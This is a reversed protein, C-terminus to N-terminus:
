LAAMKSKREKIMMLLEATRREWTCDEVSRSLALKEELSLPKELARRVFAVFQDSDKAIAVGSRVVEPIATSVVPCGAALLEYLKIPNVARTLENVVFPIIGVSFRAVYEPIVNFLRPGLLMVNRAGKLRRTDVDADGILAVTAAPNENAVRLILNQDVWESILGIFGVVPGGPMDGPPPVSAGAAARRLPGAFHGHKVGHPLYRVDQSHRRCRDELDRSSAVVFDAAACCLSDCKAMIQSDYRGFADWRDVCHYVALGRPGALSRWGGLVDHFTPVYNILTPESFGLKVMVGRTHAMVLRANLWRIASIRPLPVIFPSVIWLSSVAAAPRAGFAAYTLRRLGRRWDRTSFVSPRRMGAGEIWLVRHGSAALAGALHHKSTPNAIAASWSNALMVFDM